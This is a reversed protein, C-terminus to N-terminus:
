FPSGKLEQNEVSPDEIEAHVTGWQLHKFCAFAEFVPVMVLNEIYVLIVIYLKTWFYLQVCLLALWLEIDIDGFLFYSNQSLCLNIM